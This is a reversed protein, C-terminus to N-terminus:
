KKKLKCIFFGDKENDPLINTMSNEVIDFTDNEKLFNFITNENEQKLISCTSYVLEGGKKLYRSCNELIKVQINTIEKIDEINRQWKIDPKRKIVGIGLCPVDLLIKDFKEKLKENYISADKVETKIIEIGLRKANEEILKTRHEYIDWALIQGENEMIEAMYTTKGGPAACADLIYEGKQPNLIKATQGASIDQITFLGEKFLDLNEVNKIKELILFDEYETEKYEINKGKLKQEIEKKNTKLNNIRITIKPKLNSNKCIQEVTEINNNKLLEEIIWIPMSTTKSIKEINDDIQFFEEYDSKEVKRLIANVFNSSSSHGYRKALNVSENVAASKPIKDLFIIQYIGMRLINLIWPSIKKIKIKSYKKIIEDITLRWSTVGYIIESILGIDKEELKKRNEKIEENLAINSYAKEKDIKYLIKLAIERTKDIM